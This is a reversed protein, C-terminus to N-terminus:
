IYDETTSGNELETDTQSQSISPMRGHQCLDSLTVSGLVGDIADGLESWLWHTPCGDVRDCSAEPDDDVCFVPQLTEEVAVLVEKASIQAPERALVYGGGPGRVSHLLGARKVKLLLQALYQESVEQREAIDRCLVPGDEAHCALDVM